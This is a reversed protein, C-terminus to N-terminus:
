IEEFDLTVKFLDGDITIDMKGNQLEVLSKAISLGLGNGEMHRSRDGRVFREELEQASIDLPYKSMNRFIILVHGAKSEVSLYVRSNEQAYKCVNNLLNDFVRWLRRGDAMIRVTEEPQRAILELGKERMRQQYEGVAQALLVGAECPELNVELNGTTAKSAEVLDELLKKLRRSQRLLVQAYEAIRANGQDPTATGSLSEGGDANAGMDYRATGGMSEECILDAYNIISTLPTKLDHSVNTILETKLRESRMREEVARTIGQGISNLNEGHERLSGTMRFTDVKYEGRGEALARGANLLRRCCLAIYAILFFLVVKEMAWLFIGEGDRIFYAVGLFELICLGLYATMTTLILPIGRLTDWLTKWLFRLIRFLGRLVVYTVSNRLFRRQKIRIAIDMCYIMTWVLLAAGGVTLLLALVVENMHWGFGEWFLALILPLILYLATLVDLPIGTLVGAVVGKQGNRHGAACMLFLFSVIALFIGGAAVGIMTYRFKYVTTVLEAMDQFEDDKPFQPDIYSQLIYEMGNELVYQDLFITDELSDFTFEMLATYNTEYGDWTGWIVTAYGSDVLSLTMDINREDCFAEAAEIHGQELMQRVRYMASTGPGSGVLTDQLVEDLSWVYFNNLGLYICGILAWIGAVSSITLLFFAVIKAAVSGTLHFREKGHVAEANFYDSKEEGWRLVNKETFGETDNGQWGSEVPSEGPYEVPVSEPEIVTREDTAAAQADEDREDQGTQGREEALGTGVASMEDERINREEM